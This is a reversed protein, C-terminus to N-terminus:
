GFGFFFAFVVRDDIDVLLAVLDTYAIRFVFVVVLVEGVVTDEVLVVALLMDVLLGGKGQDLLHDLAVIASNESVSLCAASFRM